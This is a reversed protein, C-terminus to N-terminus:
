EESLKKALELVAEKQGGLLSKAEEECRRLVAECEAETGGFLREGFGFERVFKGALVRAEDLDKASNSWEEGCFMAVGVRGALLLSMEGFLESKACFARERAERRMEFLGVKEFRVGVKEAVVAKSAQHVALVEREKESLIGMSKKGQLVASSVAEFDGQEIVSKNLRLAHLAAENVLTALAAGSFGSTKKALEALNASCSKGRLHTKLIEERETVNPLSLVVRRDFRGSRLLAEDLTEIRNTAALVVIGSSEVFGDMETLLQNLTSEREDSQGNGRSKGVADIEDIFIIAPSVRKAAAFLERVRKAGAGAYIQVFSAGSQYFFPVGAEGAVAKAVLTKGVGPPGSLLFGKPMTVGFKAYKKPNKLFDVVEFLDNKVESLGAVDGFKVSSFVASFESSESKTPLSLPASEPKKVRWFSRWALVGLCVVFGVLFVIGVLALWNVGSKKLSVAVVKNLETLDIAEKLIVFSGKTTKLVIENGDIIAANIQSTKLLREYTSLDIPQTMSRLFAFSILVALITACAVIISKKNILKINLDIKKM